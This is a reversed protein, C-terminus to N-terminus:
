KKGGKTSESSPPRIWESRDVVLQQFRTKAPDLSAAQDSVRLTEGTDALVAPFVGGPRSERLKAATAEDLRIVFYGGAEVAVPEIQRIRTGKEDVLAVRLQPIARGKTDALRGEILLEGQAPVAAQIGASDSEQELGRLVAENKAVRARLTLTRSHDAGYRATVRQLEAQLAAHAATQLNRVGQTETARTKLLNDLSEAFANSVRDVEDSM